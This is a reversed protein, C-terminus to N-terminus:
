AESIEGRLNVAMSRRVQAPTMGLTLLYSLKALAAEVTMDAGGVVGAEALARGTAYGSMDVKGRLCQTCNVVVVGRESARSLADLLAGDRAPANGAGFTELVVGRVPDELLREVLSASIGPFLRLAVIGDTSLTRVQLQRAGPPRLLDRRISVEVGVSGLLPFNPSEFADFGGVSVKTARNGRLLAGNLYLCVENPEGSAALMMSTILNERADSRVEALPIQSGTLLVPKALGELMFSLASASYAMTDTGHLVVFGDFRQYNTAIDGAIAEWEPPGVNSSDLLPAYEHLVYDPLDLHNLEPMAALREALYGPAPSYGSDGRRMGITGGTYAVYVIKRSSGNRGTPKSSM